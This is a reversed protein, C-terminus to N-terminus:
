MSAETKEANVEISVEKSATVLEETNKKVTYMNGGLINISDAYLLHQYLGNLKLGEQNAQVRSITHELGFDFSITIIYKRAEFM